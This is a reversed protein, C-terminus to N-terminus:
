RKAKNNRFRTNCEHHYIAEDARLDAATISAVRCKVELSWEDCGRSEIAAAISKDVERDKCKVQSCSRRNVDKETINEGCLFCQTRIDFASNRSRTVQTQTANSKGADAYKKQKFIGGPM